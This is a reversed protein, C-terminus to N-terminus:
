WKDAGKASLIPPCEGVFGRNSFTVDDTVGLTRHTMDRISKLITNKKNNQIKGYEQWSTQGLEKGRSEKEKGISYKKVQARSRMM